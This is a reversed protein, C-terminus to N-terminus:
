YKATCTTTLGTRCVTTEAEDTPEGSSGSGASAKPASGSNSGAAAPTQVAGAAANSGLQVQMASIPITETAAEGNAVESCIANSGAYTCQMGITFGASDVVGSPMVQTYSMFDSGAVM